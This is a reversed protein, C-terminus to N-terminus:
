DAHVAHVIGLHNDCMLEDPFFPNSWELVAIGFLGEGSITRMYCDPFGLIHGFEHALTRPTIKGPGLVMASKIVQSSQAGTTLIMKKKPFKKLHADLDEQQKLFRENIPVKQWDIAFRIGLRRAWPSQNWYTDVAGEFEELFRSSSVDTVAPIRITKGRFSHFSLPLFPQFVERKPRLSERADNVRESTQGKGMLADLAHYARPMQTPGNAEALAMIHRPVWTHSIRLEQAAQLLLADLSELAEIIGRLQQERRTVELNKWNKVASKLRRILTLARATDSAARFASFRTPPDIPKPFIAPIGQDVIVEPLKGYSARSQFAATKAEADPEIEPRELEPHAHVLIDSRVFDRERLAHALATGAFKQWWAEAKQDLWNAPERTRVLAADPYRGDHLFLLLPLILGAFLRATLSV